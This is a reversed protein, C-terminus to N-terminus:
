SAKETLERIGRPYGAEKWSHFARLARQRAEQHDVIPHPYTKGLIVGARDRCQPPSEWPKHIWPLPLQSLEPIWRRVYEGKPDFRIGQIIPNLIRFYPAADAGCGAVWQWGLTNNALDADVLTDWFWEAGKQWPILLHKVLFSAVVMRVRNHMWGTTWLERMGADVLPFGTKGQQWAKLDLTNAKWPFREYESRLPLVPSHPVHHLVYAAFERWGIQRLFCHASQHMDKRQDSRLVAHIAHWIQRVSMEGFHLHPSLRSGRTLDPRDRTQKYRILDYELFNEFNEKAIKEGPTWIVRIGSVWDIQPELELDDLPVSNPTEVLWPLSTPAPLPKEPSNGKLCARWFPTFVKYATGATNFREEPDFLLSGNFTRVSVRRQELKRTIKSDIIQWHPEYIRNFFVATAGSDHILNQLGVTYDSKLILLRNGLSELTNNLSKLSQHLWWRSAAGMAWKESDNPDWIYVAVIPQGHQCAAFLAPNDAVRLDKRFWVISTHPKNM